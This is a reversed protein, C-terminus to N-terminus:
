TRQVLDKALGAFLRAQLVHFVLAGVRLALTLSLMLGIYGAAKPWNGPLLHDMVKLAADGRGLLVEDVLLPLLLPIPVSCLTALVAVGNALWLAKKHRLALLCIASWSLAVSPTTHSQRAAAPM